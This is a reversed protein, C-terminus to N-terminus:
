QLDGFRYRIFLSANFDAKPDPGNETLKRAALNVGGFLRHGFQRSYSAAARYYTSSSFAQPLVFSIPQSFHSGDVSLLISSDADLQRSYDVGANITKAPGAVTASTQDIAARACLHDHEGVDCLAANAALGITHRTRFGDDVSSFSAGVAGNLTMRESLQLNGTLQPTVTWIKSPGNYDTYLLAVRAGVNARPSIQRDYGLSVPISWYNTDPFSNGQRFISHEVGSSFDLNDRAGLALQGGADASFFYHKGTLALFDAGPPLVAPPITPSGPLAPVDPVSIIRTDLLGNKDYSAHADVFLRLKENVAADHRANISLSENSGYHRAYATEQAFASLLTTTRDTIRTHVGHLSIYGDASGNGSSFSFQPNTSYGAGGELDLYTIQGVGPGKAPESGTPPAEAPTTPQATQAALTAMLAIVASM